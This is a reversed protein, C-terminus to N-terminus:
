FRISFMTSLTLLTLVDYSFDTSNWFLFTSNNMLTINFAWRNKHQGFVIKPEVQPITLWEDSSLNKGVNTLGLVSVNLFLNSEFVWIYSYGISPGFYLLNQKEAYNSMTEAQSYMSTYFAGLGYLLSGSSVNQKKDLNIVSSLSHNKHNKVYTAMHGATFVDLGSNEDTEQVYFADSYKIYANFYVKDFYSNLEFDLAFGKDSSLPFSLKGAVKKYRLGL